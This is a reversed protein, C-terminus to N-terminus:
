VKMKKNKPVKVIYGNFFNWKEMKLYKVLTGIPFTGLVKIKRNKLVKGVNGNSFYM